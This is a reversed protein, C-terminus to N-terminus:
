EFNNEISDIISVSASDRISEPLRKLVWADRVPGSPLILFSRAKIPDELIDMVEVMAAPELQSYEAILKQQAIESDSLKKDVSQDGKSASISDAVAKLGERIVEPGTTKRQRRYATQTLSSEAPRKRVQSLTPSSSRSPLSSVSIQLSTEDFPTSLSNEPISEEVEPIFGNM